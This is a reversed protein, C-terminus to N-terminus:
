AQLFSLLIEKIKEPQRKMLHNKINTGPWQRGWVHIELTCVNGPNWKRQGTKVFQISPVATESATSWHHFPIFRTEQGQSWESSINMRFLEEFVTDVDQNKFTVDLFNGQSKGSPGTLLSQAKVASPRHETGPWRVLTRCAVWFLQLFFERLKREWNRMIFFEGIWCVCM